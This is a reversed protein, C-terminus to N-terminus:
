CGDRLIYAMVMLPLDMLSRIVTTWLFRELYPDRGFKQKCATNAEDEEAGGGLSVGNALAPWIQAYTAVAQLRAPQM